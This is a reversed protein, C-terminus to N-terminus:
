PFLDRRRGQLAGVSFTRTIDSCYGKYIGGMDFIVLDGEELARGTSYRRPKESNPGSMVFPEFSAGEAGAAEMAFKARLSIEREAAGRRALGLAEQMAADAIRASERLREIEDADKVARLELLDGDVPEVEVGGFVSGLMRVQAASAASLDVGLRCGPPFLGRFLDLYHPTDEPFSKIEGVRSLWCEELAVRHDLVPVGYVVEGPPKVALVSFSATNWRLDTIYRIGARGFLVLGGLNREEIIGALRDLREKLKMGDPPIM